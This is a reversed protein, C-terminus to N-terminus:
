ECEQPEGGWAAQNCRPIVDGCLYGYPKEERGVGMEPQGSEAGTLSKLVSLGLSARASGKSHGLM